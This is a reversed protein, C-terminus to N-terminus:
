HSIGAEIILRCNRIVADTREAGLNTLYAAINQDARHLAEKEPSGVAGSVDARMSKVIELLMDQQLHESQLEIRKVESRLSAVSEAPFDSVGGKLRRRVERLPRVVHDRWAETRAVVGCIDADDLPTDRVTALWCFFLLLNVDAGAEDQLQLCAASVGPKRYVALSFDWFPNGTAM